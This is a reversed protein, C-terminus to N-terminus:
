KFTIKNNNCHYAASDLCQFTRSSGVQLSPHSITNSQSIFISNPSCATIYQPTLSGSQIGELCGGTNSKQLIMNRASTGALPLLSTQLSCINEALLDIFPLLHTHSVADVSRWKQYFTLTQLRQKQYFLSDRM